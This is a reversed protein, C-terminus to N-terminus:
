YNMKGEQIVKATCTFEGEVCTSAWSETGYPLLKGNSWDVVFLFIDRGPKNPGKARSNIDVYIQPANNASLFYYTFGDTTVIEGCSDSAFLNPPQWTINGNEDYDMGAKCWEENCREYIKKTKVTKFQKSIKTFCEEEIEQNNWSDQITGCYTQKWDVVGEDVAMKNIANGLVSYAKKLQTVYVQKQYNQILTPLTMAAVVGIIGLTILVEALTFARNRLM